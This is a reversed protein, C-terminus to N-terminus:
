QGLQAIAARLPANSIQVLGAYPTYMELILFVAGSVSLAAIFLSSVVTGNFPAFLGFSIFIATLWLVLVILLPLSVSNTSQEYMLWRMKGIDMAISIAQSQLSRQTDDKPSLGQIKEYFIEGGASTPTASQTANGKPWMQDVTRIVAARLFARM